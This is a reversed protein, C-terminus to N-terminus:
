RCTYSDHIFIKEIGAYIARYILHHVVRDIFNAAFIKCKVPKNVMFVM